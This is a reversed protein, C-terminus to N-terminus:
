EIGDYEIGYKLCFQEMAAIANDAEDEEADWEEETYSDGGCGCDCGFIVASRSPSSSAYSYDDFLEKLESFKM